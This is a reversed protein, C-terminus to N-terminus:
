QGARAPRIRRLAAQAARGLLLDEAGSAAIAPAAKIATPGLTGLAELALLRAAWEKDQLAEVLSPVAPRGIAALARIVQDHLGRPEDLQRLIAVLKPAAASAEQGIRTLAWAAAFRVVVPRDSEELIRLLTPVAARAKPGHRGVLACLAILEHSVHLLHEGDWGKSRGWADLIPLLSETNSNLGEFRSGKRGPMLLVTENEPCYDNWSPGQWAAAEVKLGEILDALCDPEMQSLLVGCTQRAGSSLNPDKLIQRFHQRVVRDEPAIRALALAAASVEYGYSSRLMKLLHPIRPRVM